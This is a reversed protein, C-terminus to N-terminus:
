QNHLDLLDIDARSSQDRSYTKLRILMAQPLLLSWWSGDEAQEEFCTTMPNQQTSAVM